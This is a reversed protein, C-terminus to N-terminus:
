WRTSAVGIGYYSDPEQEEEPLVLFSMALAEARDPSKAGRKKSDEKSEVVSQTYNSDWRVRVDSLQRKTEQSLAGPAFAILGERFRNRLQHWMEQRLNRYATRDSSKRAVNIEVAPLGLEELRDYVGAGIGVIDVRVEALPGYHEFRKLVNTIRGVTEMTKQGNWAEEHLVTMGQRVCIVTEDEGTRAVDVGAYVPEGTAIEPVDRQEAAEIEALGLLVNTAGTPFRAFVAAEVYPHDIGYTRITDEVWEPDVLAPYPMSRGAVKERWKGTHIDEQTIGFTTFNPTQFADITIQNYRHAEEHFAARFMGGTSTPNGILLLKAGRGTLISDAARLLTESVGAAEDVIVLINEAHFGQMVDTNEDTGKFGIGYWDDGIEYKTTFAKGLLPRRATSHERRIYRWMVHQVQRGSPATTVVISNQFEHLFWVAVKASVHTKGVSYGSRVATRKHTAVSRLVERQASWLGGSLVEDVFPEAGKPYLSDLAEVDEEGTDLRDLFRGIGGALATGGIM